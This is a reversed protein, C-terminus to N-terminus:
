TCIEESIFAHIHAIFLAYLSLLQDQLRYPSGILRLIIRTLCSKVNNAQKFEYLIVQRNITGLLVREIEMKSEDNGGTADLDELKKLAAKPDAGIVQGTKRNVTRGYIDEQLEEEGDDESESDEQDEEPSDISEELDVDGEGTSM